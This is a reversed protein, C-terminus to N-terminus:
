LRLPTDRSEYINQIKKLYPIVMDLKIMAPYTHCIKSLPDKQGGRVRDTLLGSFDMRFLNLESNISFLEDHSIYSNIFAKSIFVDITDLKAKGLLVIKNNNNKKRKIISKYNNNGATTECIKLLVASNTIGVSVAVLSTFSSISVWGTVTSALILM